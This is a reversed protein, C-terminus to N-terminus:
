CNNSASDSSSTLTPYITLPIPTPPRGARSETGQTVKGVQSSQTDRRKGESSNEEVGDKGTSIVVPHPRGDTLTHAQALPVDGLCPLQVLAWTFIAQPPPAQKVMSVHSIHLASSNLLLVRQPSLSPSCLSDFAKPQLRPPSTFM